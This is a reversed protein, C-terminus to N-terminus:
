KWPGCRVGTLEGRFEPKVSESQGTRKIIRWCTEGGCRQEVTEDTEHLAYGGSLPQVWEGPTEGIPTLATVGLLRALRCLLYFVYANWRTCPAADQWAVHGADGFFGVTNPFGGHPYQLALLKRTYREVSERAFRGSLHLEWLARIPDAARAYFSPYEVTEWRQFLRRLRYVPMTLRLVRRDMSTVPRMLKMWAGGPSRVNLWIGPDIDQRSLYQGGRAAAELLEADGTARSVEILPQLCKGVYITMLRDDFRGQRYGGDLPGGRIQHVLEARAIRQAQQVLSQDGTAEALALRSWAWSLVQNSVLCGVLMDGSVWRNNLKDLKQAAELYKKDQTAVSLKALARICSTYFVPGTTKGPIDGWDNEMRNDPGISQSLGDGVRRAEALWDGGPIRAHHLELLGLIMPFQNMPHPVATEVYSSWWTAILGAFRGDAVQWTKLYWWARPLVRAVLDRLEADTSAPPLSLSQM